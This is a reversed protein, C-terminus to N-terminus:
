KVTLNVRNNVGKLRRIWIFQLQMRSLPSLSIFVSASIWLRIRWHIESSFICMEWPLKDSVPLLFYYLYFAIIYLVISWDSLFLVVFFLGFLFLFMHSKEQISCSIDMLSYVQKEFMRLYMNLKFVFTKIPTLRDKVWYSKSCCLM